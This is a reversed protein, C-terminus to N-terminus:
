RAPSSRGDRGPLLADRMVRVTTLWFTSAIVFRANNRPMTPGVARGPQASGRVSSYGLSPNQRTPGFNFFSDELTPTADCM